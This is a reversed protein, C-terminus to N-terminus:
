ILLNRNKLERYLLESRESSIGCRMCAETFSEKLGEETIIGNEILIKEKNKMIFSVLDKNLGEM